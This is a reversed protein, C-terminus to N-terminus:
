FGPLKKLSDLAGAAKNLGPVYKNAVTTLLQKQPDTLSANKAVNQLAPIATAVQGSRFSSVITAVDGQAGDLTAFNKQVAYASALNGVQKALGVQEPTLKAATALKFASTLGASDEGGTLSKLMADMQTTLTSNTGGAAEFAQLKDVLESAISGLQTDASSQAANLLNTALTATETQASAATLGGSLAIAALALCAFTNKM